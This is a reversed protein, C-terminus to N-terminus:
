LFNNIILALNIVLSGFFLYKYKKVKDRNTSLKKPARKPNSRDLVRIKM